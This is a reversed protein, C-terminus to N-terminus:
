YYKKLLKKNNFNHDLYKTYNNFLFNSYKIAVM